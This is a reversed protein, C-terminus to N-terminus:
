SGFHVSASGARSIRLEIDDGPDVGVMPGLAGSLVIDGAHLPRGVEVMTRALWRVAQLPHGLCALGAGTSVLEGRKELVMGCLQLDIDQLRVPSAGLVYLGSSANDAITDLIQIDWREIRSGVIEIAPLAFGIARIVDAISPSATTLDRELVFALEGEAKPQLVAGRPVVDGDAVEMDAFLMGFDPQGIQMAQQVSRSTLGIKRGVLRRGAAVARQTNLEQTAYAGAIDGAVILDRVPACAIGTSSATHLREAAQAIAEPSTLPASM